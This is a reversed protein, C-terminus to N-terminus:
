SLTLSFDIIVALLGSLLDGTRFLCAPRTWDFSDIWTTRTDLSYDNLLFFLISRMKEEKSLTFLEIRKEKWKRHDMM